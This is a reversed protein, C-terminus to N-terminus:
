LYFYIIAGHFHCEILMFETCSGCFTCVASDSVQCMRNRENIYRNINFEFTCSVDYPTTQSIRRKFQLKQHMDREQCLENSKNIVSVLILSRSFQMYTFVVEAISVFSVYPIAHWMHTTQFLSLSLSLAGNLSNAQRVSTRCTSKTNLLGLVLPMHHMFGFSCVCEINLVCMM